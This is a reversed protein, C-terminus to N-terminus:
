GLFLNKLDLSWSTLNTQLSVFQVIFIFDNLFAEPSLVKKAKKTEMVKINVHSGKTLDM